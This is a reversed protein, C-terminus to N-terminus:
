EKGSSSEENARASEYDKLSEQLEAGFEFMQQGVLQHMLTVRELPDAEALRKVMPGVNGVFDALLMDVLASLSMKGPLERLLQDAAARVDPDLTLTVKPKVRYQEAM